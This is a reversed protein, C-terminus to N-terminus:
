PLRRAVSLEALTERDGLDLQAYYRLADESERLRLRLSEDNPFVALLRTLQAVQTQHWCMRDAVPTTM